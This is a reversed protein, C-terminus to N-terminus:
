PSNGTWRDPDYVSSQWPFRQIETRAAARGDQAAGIDATQFSALAGVEEGDVEVTDAKGAHMIRSSGNDKALGDVRVVRDDASLKHDLFPLKTCHIFAPQDLFM